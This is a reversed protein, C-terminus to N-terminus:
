TELESGGTDFIGVGRYLDNSGENLPEGRHTTVKVLFTRSEVTIRPTLKTLIHVPYPVTSGYSVGGRFSIKVRLFPYSWLLVLETVTWWGKEPGELKM